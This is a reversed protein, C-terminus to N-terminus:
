YNRTAKQTDVSNRSYKMVVCLNAASSAKWEFRNLRNEKVDANFRPPTLQDEVSNISSKKLVILSFRSRNKIVFLKM